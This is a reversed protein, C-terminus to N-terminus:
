LSENAKIPYFIVISTFFIFFLIVLTKELPSLSFHNTLGIFEVFLFGIYTRYLSGPALM